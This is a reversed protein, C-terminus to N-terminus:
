LKEKKAITKEIFAIQEPNLDQMAATKGCKLYMYKGSETYSPWYPYGPSNPDGYKAFQAWYTNMMEGLQDNEITYLPTWQTYDFTFKGTVWLNNFVYTLESSHGAGLNTGDSKVTQEAFMYQYVPAPHVTKMREAVHSLARKMADRGADHLVTKLNDKSLDYLKVFEEFDEGLYARISEIKEEDTDGSIPLFSGEDATSGFLIPVRAIRGNMFARYPDEPIVVGDVNPRFIMGKTPYELLKEASLARMQAASDCNFHSFVVEGNSEAETLAATTRNYHPGGSHIAAACFLGSALPSTLLACVSMGGASQGAVMVRNPDGGFARINEKVWRLAAIQDLIGYNGSIGTESEASLSKHAMFGFIGLRYNITVLVVGHRAFSWGEFLQASGMGGLFSGGHIYLLVPLAENESRAPTWVNLYLCDESQTHQDLTMNNVQGPKQPCCPAPTYCERVGEWPIPRQPACWRLNGVPPAAYPVGMFRSIGDKEIGSVLGYRTKVLTLSRAM